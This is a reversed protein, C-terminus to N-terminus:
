LNAVAQLFDTVTEVVLLPGVSRLLQSAIGGGFFDGHLVEELEELVLTPPSFTSVDGFQETVTSYRRQHQRCYAEFGDIRMVM